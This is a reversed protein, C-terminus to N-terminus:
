KKLIKIIESNEDIYSTYNVVGVVVCNHLSAEILLDLFKLGM